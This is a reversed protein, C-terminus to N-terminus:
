HPQADPTVLELQVQSIRKDATLTQLLKQLDAGAPASLLLLGASRHRVGLGYQKLVGAEEAPKALRLLVNGNVTSSVLEGQAMLVDGRVLGPATLSKASRTVAASNAQQGTAAPTQKYYTKGNVVVPTGTPVKSPNAMVPVSLALLTTLILYKM